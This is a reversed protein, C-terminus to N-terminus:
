RGIWDAADPVLSVVQNMFEAQTFPKVLYASAGAEEANARDTPHSRSSMVLVPVDKVAPTRRIHECIDYGSFQPLMLDLCVLDPSLRELTNMATKGETIQKVEFGLHQLYLTILERFSPDDEVLVARPRKERKM